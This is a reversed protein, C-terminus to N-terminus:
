TGRPLNLYRAQLFVDELKRGFQVNGQASWWRTWSRRKKCLSGIIEERQVIFNSVQIRVGTNDM